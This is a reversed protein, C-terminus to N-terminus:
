PLATLFAEVGSSTAAVVALRARWITLGALAADIEAQALRREADAVDTMSSLGATYRATAQAEVARAAEVIIQAHGMAERAAQEDQRAVQLRRALERAADARRAEAARVRLQAVAEGARKNSLDIVPMTVSVGIAWNYAELGLGDAGRGSTNDDRVGTGRAYVTGQLTVHPDASRRAIELRAAAEGAAAQGEVLIPHEAPPRESAVTAAPVPPAALPGSAGDGLYLGLQARAADHARRALVLQLTAAAHEARAAYLDAGPRIEAKVLAEIETVLVGARSAAAEAAKVTEGTALASLFADAVAAATELETRASAAHGRSAARRAAEVGAARAGFDFPEWTVLTGLATGWVSTPSNEFAPPGSIPAIVGQPFLLGSVNNHTARNVQLLADIRPRYSQRAIDITATAADRDAAAAVVGPDGALALRVAGAMTLPAPQAWAAGAGWALPALLLGALWAGTRSGDHM